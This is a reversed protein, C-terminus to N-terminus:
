MKIREVKTTVTTKANVPMSNGMVETAGNSEINSTKEKIIGSAKDAIIQGTVNNKMTTSTEMGMMETTSTVTSITKFDVIITSDTVASLKYTTIGSESATKFTEQWSEGVAAGGEPIIAFFSASGKKPAYVISTLENLMNAIIAVRADPQELAIKEPRVMLTKGSKDIIMDFEKSMIDKFPKGFQGNMDKENDSSFKRKQGMGDFDFQMRTIKHHLTTNDDTSNSVKYNHNANGNVKFDIAQGMAQQAITQDVSIQIAISDGQLFDLMSTIKQSFAMSATMTVVSLTAILKQM